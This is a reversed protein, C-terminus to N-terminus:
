TMLVNLTTAAELVCFVFLSCHMRIIGNSDGADAADDM